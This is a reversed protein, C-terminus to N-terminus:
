SMGVLPKGDPGTNFGTPLPRGNRAPDPDKGYLLGPMGNIVAGLDGGGKQDGTVIDPRGPIQDNLDSPKDGQDEPQDADPTANGFTPSDKLSAPKDAEDQAIEAAAETDTGEYGALSDRTSQAHARLGAVVQENNAKHNAVATMYAAAFSAGIPGLGIALSSQLAHLDVANVGELQAAMADVGVAHAALATPDVGVQQEM